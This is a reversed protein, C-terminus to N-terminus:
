AYDDATFEDPDAEPRHSENWDEICREPLPVPMNWRTRDRQSIHLSPPVRRDFSELYRDGDTELLKWANSYLDGIPGIIERASTRISNSLYKAGARRAKWESVFERIRGM